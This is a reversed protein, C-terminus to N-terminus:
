CVTQTRRWQACRVNRGAEADGNWRSFRHAARWGGGPFLEDTVPHSHWIFDGQLKAIKVHYDNMQAIIKPQWYETLKGLKERLNISNVTM